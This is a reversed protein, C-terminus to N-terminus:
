NQDSDAAAVHACVTLCWGANCGMYPCVKYHAVRANFPQAHMRAWGQCTSGTNLRTEGRWVAGVAAHRQICQWMAINHRGAAHWQWQSTPGFMCSNCHVGQTSSSKSRMRKAYHIVSSLRGSQQLWDGPLRMRGIWVCPTVSSTATVLTLSVAIQQGMLPPLLVRFVALCCCCGAPLLWWHPCTVGIFHLRHPV